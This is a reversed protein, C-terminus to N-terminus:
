KVVRLKHTESLRKLLEKMIVTSADARDLNENKSLEM